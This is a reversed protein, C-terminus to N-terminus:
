DLGRVGMMNGLICKLIIRAGVGTNWATETGEPKGVLLGQALRKEREGTVRFVGRGGWEGQNIGWVVNQLWNWGRLRGPGVWYRGRVAWHSILVKLWVMIISVDFAHGGAHRRADLSYSASHSCPGVPVCQLWIAKRLWSIEICWYGGVWIYLSGKIPIPVQYHGNYASVHLKM